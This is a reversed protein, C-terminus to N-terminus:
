AHGRERPHPATRSHVAHRGRRLSPASAPSWKEKVSELTQIIAQLTDREAGRAHDHHYSRCAWKLTEAQELTLTLTVQKEATAKVMALAGGERREAGHGGGLDADARVHDPSAVGHTRPPAKPRQRDCGTGAHLLRARASRVPRTCRAGRAVQPLRGGARQRAGVWRVRQHPRHPLHATQRVPSAHHKGKELPNMAGGAPRAFRRADM